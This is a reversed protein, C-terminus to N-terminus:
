EQRLWVQSRGLLALGIYGRLILKRADDVVKLKCRYISGTDPDLIEGGSYEDGHRRMGRMIILGLIPKNKRDGPCLDCVNAAEKPNVASEIRAFLEGSQEYVRVTGRFQHTKDDFTKWIGEPSGGAARLGPRSALLAVILLPLLREIM